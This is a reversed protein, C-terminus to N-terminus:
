KKSNFFSFLSYIGPLDVIRIRYDKHKLIGERKEVTSVAGTQSKQRSRNVQQIITTKGSNPNGVLGILIEKKDSIM